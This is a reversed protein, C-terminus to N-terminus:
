EAPEKYGYDNKMKALQREYAEIAREANRKSLDLKYQEFHKQMIVKRSKGWRIMKRKQIHLKLVIWIAFKLGYLMLSLAAFFALVLYLWHPVGIEFLHVFESIKNFAEIASTLIGSM